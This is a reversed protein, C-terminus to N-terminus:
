LGSTRPRRPWGTEVLMPGRTAESLQRRTEGHGNELEPPLLRWKKKKIRPERPPDPSPSQAGDDEGGHAGGAWRQVLRRRQRGHAPRHVLQDRPHDGGILGAWRSDRQGLAHRLRAASLRPPRRVGNSLPSPPISVRWPRHRGLVHRRAPRQGVAEWPANVDVGGDDSSSPLVAITQPSRRGVGRHSTFYRSSALCLACLSRAAPGPDQMQEVSTPLSVSVKSEAL